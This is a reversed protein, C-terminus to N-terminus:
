YNLTIGAGFGMDSDYHTSIGFYKTIIYRFGVMSEKDTNVMFNLRLRATIPIDDRSLQFRLRGQTDIRFDAFVLMPLTYRVGAILVKRKDATNNQGFM